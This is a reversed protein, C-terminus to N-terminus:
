FALKEVPCPFIFKETLLIVPLTGQPCNERNTEAPPYIVNCRM